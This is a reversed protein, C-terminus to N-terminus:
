TLIVKIKIQLLRARLSLDVLFDFDQNSFAVRESADSPIFLGFSSADSPSTLLPLSQSLKEEKPSTDSDFGSYYLKDDESCTYFCVLFKL